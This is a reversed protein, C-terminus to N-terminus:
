QRLTAKIRKTNKLLQLAHIVNSVIMTSNELLKSFTGDPSIVAISFDAEKFMEVDNQGNGMVLVVRKQDKLSKVFQRKDKGTEVVKVKLDLGELSAAATGFTDATLVTLQYRDSIENILERVGPLIEGGSALTGNYDMVVDDIEEIIEYLSM